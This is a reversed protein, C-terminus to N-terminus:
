ETEKRILRLFYCQGAVSIISITLFITFGTNSKVQESYIDAVNGILLDIVLVTMVPLLVAYM